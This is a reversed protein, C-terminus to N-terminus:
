QCTGYATGCPICEDGDTGYGNNISEEAQVDCTQPTNYPPSCLLTGAAYMITKGSACDASSVEDLGLAHGIEHTVVNQVVWDITHHYFDATSAISDPNLQIHVQYMVNANLCTGCANKTNFCNTNVSQSQYATRGLVGAGLDYNNDIDLDLWGQTFYIFYRSQAASWAAAANTIGTTSLSGWYAWELNKWIEKPWNLSTNNCVCPAVQTVALLAAILTLSRRWAM